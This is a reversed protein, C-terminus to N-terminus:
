YRVEEIASVPENFLVKDPLACSCYLDNQHSFDIAKKYDMDACFWGRFSRPGVAGEECMAPFWDLAREYTLAYWCPLQSGLAEGIRAYDSLIWENGELPIFGIQSCMILCDAGAEIAAQGMRITWETALSMAQRCLEPNKRAAKMFETWGMMFMGVTGLPDNGICVSLPMVKDLGHDAFLRKTERCAWLYGPYLGTNRPDPIELGELDALSKIPCEGVLAPNGYDTMTVDAGWIEQTYSIPYLVPLDLGYQAVTAIHAKVLLKPDRCVDGPKSFQGQPDLTRVAYPNFYFSELFLRDRERSELTAKLRELPTFTDESETINQRIQQCYRELDLREEASWEFGLQDLPAGYWYPAGRLKGQKM